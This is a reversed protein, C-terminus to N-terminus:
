ATTLRNKIVRAPSGAIISYPPFEKKPVVAGAAIISGKGIKAGSLIIANAGIWVNDEVIVSYINQKYEMAVADHGQKNIPIDLRDFKHNGARILTGRAMLVDDGIYIGKSTCFNIEAYEGCSFRKGIYIDNKNGYLRTMRAINLNSTLSYKKSWYTRRLKNGIYGEPWACVILEVWSLFEAVIEKVIQIPVRILVFSSSQEKNNINKEQM